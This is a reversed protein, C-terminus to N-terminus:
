FYINYYHRKAVAKSNGLFNFNLALLLIENWKTGEHHENAQIETQNHKGTDQPLKNPVRDVFKLNIIQFILTKYSYSFVFFIRNFLAVAVDVHLPLFFM